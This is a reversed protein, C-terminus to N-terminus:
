PHIPWSNLQTGERRLGLPTRLDVGTERSIAELVERVSYVRGTGLNFAAFQKM